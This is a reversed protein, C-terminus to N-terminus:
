DFNDFLYDLGIEKLEEDTMGCVDRLVERVYDPDADCLDNDVYSIFIEELREFSM